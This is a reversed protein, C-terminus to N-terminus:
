CKNAHAELLYSVKCVIAGNEVGPAMIKLCEPQAIFFKKTILVSHSPRDKMKLEDVIAKALDEAM